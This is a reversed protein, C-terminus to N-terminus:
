REFETLADVMGYALLLQLDALYRGQDVDREHLLIQRVQARHFLRQGQSRLLGPLDGPRGAFRRAFAYDFFGEHTFAVHGEDVILVGEYVLADRDAPWADLVSAPATLVQHSNMAECLTDIVEVWAPDRGLRERLARVKTDWFAAFLDSVSSFGSRGGSAGSTLFLRLNLPIALVDLQRNTLGAPDQFPLTPTDAAIADAVAQSLVSTKGVGASGTLVIIRSSSDGLAKKLTDTEPRPIWSGRIRFREAEALYRAQQEEIRALVGSDRWWEQPTFERSGLHAWL